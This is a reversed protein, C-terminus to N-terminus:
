VCDPWRPLKEVSPNFPKFVFCILREKGKMSFEASIAASQSVMLDCDCSIKSRAGYTDNTFDRAVRYNEVRGGQM